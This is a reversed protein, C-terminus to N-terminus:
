GNLLLCGRPRPPTSACPVTPVQLAPQIGGRQRHKPLTDSTTESLPTVATVRELTHGPDRDANSMSPLPSRGQVEYLLSVRQWAAGAASATRAPSNADPGLRSPSPGPSPRVAHRRSFKAKAPPPTRGSRRYQWQRAPQCTMRRGRSRAAICMFDAHQMRDAFAGTQEMLTHGPDRDANSMSPLPSRGQVEYLLSVRQWAAGAASATRAPSNADPGLRSPSPGPSPRVAHRRSFKAKAPPPTRGSRRYQWQRAPQCTMRRGRSRAAICMFDAHQMRDAFAGTQEMLSLLEAEIFGLTARVADDHAKVVRAGTKPAAYVLAELSVSKPASFTIDVGPRHQHEGDRLRGLRLDTGPVYGALIDEFRKPKVPGHLGLAAAEGYWGSAKRHEPDNRAYYGDAEFYHVTMAAAKLRTVTAVM